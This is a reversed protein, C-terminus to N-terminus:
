LRKQETMATLISDMCCKANDESEKKQGCFLPIQIERSNSLENNLYEWAKAGFQKYAMESIQGKSMREKTCQFTLMSEVFNFLTKMRECTTYITEMELQVAFRDANYNTTARYWLHKKQSTSIIFIFPPKQPTCLADRIQRVNLLQIGDASKVYSYFYLSFLPACDPCVYEGVLSWDTFNSSVLKKVRVGETQIQGCGPCVFHAPEPPIEKTEIDKVIDNGKGDRTEYRLIM